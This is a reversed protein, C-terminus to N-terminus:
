KREMLGEPRDAYGGVRRLLNPLDVQSCQLIIYWVQCWSAIKSVCRLSKGVCGLDHEFCYCGSQHAECMDELYKKKSTWLKKVVYTCKDESNLVM